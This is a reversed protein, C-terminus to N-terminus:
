GRRFITLPQEDESLPFARLENAIRASNAIARRLRDFEEANDYIGRPGQADLLTRVTEASVEGTESFQTCALQWAVAMAAAGAGAVKTFQRRDITMDGGAGAVATAIGPSGKREESNRKSM